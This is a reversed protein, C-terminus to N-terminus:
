RWKMTKFQARINDKGAEEIVHCLEVMESYLEPLAQQSHLLDDIQPYQDLCVNLEQALDISRYCPQEVFESYIQDFKPQRKFAGTKHARYADALARALAKPAQVPDSPQEILENRISRIAESLVSYEAGAISAEIRSIIENYRTQGEARKRAHEQQCLKVMDHYNVPLDKDAYIIDGDFYPDQNAIETLRNALNLIESCPKAVFENYVKSRDQEGQEEYAEYVQALPEDFTSVDVFRTFKRSAEDLVLFKQSRMVEKIEAITADYDRRAAPTTHDMASVQLSVSLAFAVFTLMAGFLTNGSSYYM